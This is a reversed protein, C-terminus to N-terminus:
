HRDFDGCFMKKPALSALFIIVTIVPKHCGLTWLSTAKQDKLMPEPQPPLPKTAATETESPPSPARTDAEVETHFLATSKRRQTRERRAKVIWKFLYLLRYPLPRGIRRQVRM